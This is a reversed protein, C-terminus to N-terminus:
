GLIQATNGQVAQQHLRGDASMPGDSMEDMWSTKSWNVKFM